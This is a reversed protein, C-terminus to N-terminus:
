SSEACAASSVTPACSAAGRPITLETSTEPTTPNKMSVAIVSAIRSRGAAADDGLANMYTTSRASPPRSPPAITHITIPAIHNQPSDDTVEFERISNANARSPPGGPAPRRARTLSRKRVGAQATQAHTAVANTSAIQLWAYLTITDILVM